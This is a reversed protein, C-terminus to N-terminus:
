ANFFKRKLYQTKYEPSRDKIYDAKGFVRKRYEELTMIPKAPVGAYVMNSELVGKVVSGAGIVVNDGVVTGHLLTANLGVFVNDGIVISGFVDINPSSQRFVWVGGDHTVFRVGGTITVHNGIQILYPESGFTSRSVSILRCSHGVSVGLYRAFKIPLRRALFVEYFKKLLGM